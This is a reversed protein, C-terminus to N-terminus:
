VPAMQCSTPITVRWSLTSVARVTWQSGLVFDASLIFLCDGTDEILHCTQRHAFAEAVDAVHQVAHQM